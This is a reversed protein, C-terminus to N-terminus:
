SCPSPSIIPRFLTKLTKKMKIIQPRVSPIANMIFSVRKNELESQKIYFFIDHVTERIISVSVFPFLGALVESEVSTPLEKTVGIVWEYREQLKELLELFRKSSFLETSFPTKHGLPIYHTAKHTYVKPFTIRGELYDLLTDSSISKSESLYLILASQGRKNFLEALSHSYDPGEGQILLLRKPLNNKIFFLPDAYSQIRRLTNLNSADQEFHSHSMNTIVGAVHAGLYTLNEQSAKLGIKLSSGLVFLGSLVVGTATGLIGFLLIRPNLPHLPAIALDLPASQIVEVNHSIIKTEIIEGMKTTILQNTSVEQEILREAMLQKSLSIMQAHIEQLHHKILAREQTLSSLKSNIFDELTKELLSIKQYSLSLWINQLLQIKEELLSKSLKMVETSQKLHLKFFDRQLRLEGKLREQERPSQNNADKLQLSLESTKKLINQSLSDTLFSSLASIEFSEDEIQALFFLHEKINAEMAILSKSFENYLEGAVAFDIGKYEEAFNQQQATQEELIKKHMSFIRELNSLYFFFNPLSKEWTSSDKEQLNSLHELWKKILFHSNQFIKFSGFSHNTLNQSTKIIAIERLYNQLEEIQKLQTEFVTELVNNKNPTKRQLTLQLSDRQQRIERLQALVSNIFSNKSEELQSTTYNNLKIAELRKIELENELLKTKYIQQNQTLFEVEKQVNVSGANFLDKALFDVHKEMVQNLDQKLEERRKHLYDIQTKAIENHKQKLLNQYKFMAMNLLQSALHRDRNRYTFTLLSRDINGKEVRLTSLLQQISNVLPLVRLSLAIPMNTINENENKILTFSFLESNFIKGLEGKGLIKKASDKVLYTDNSHLEIFLSLPIEGKYSLTKLILPSYPDKLAPTAQHTFAYWNIKLNNLLHTFVTRLFSDNAYYYSLKGQLNFEEVIAGMLKHSKILSIAENESTPLTSESAIFQILSSGINSSRLNKERFTGKAEYKIPQLLAFFIALFTCIFTSLLIQRKKERLIFLVDSFSILFNNKDMATRIREM